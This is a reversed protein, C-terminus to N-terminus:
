KNRGFILFLIFGIVMFPLAIRFLIVFVVGIISFVGKIIIFAPALAVMGLVIILGIAGLGLGALAGNFLKEKLLKKM